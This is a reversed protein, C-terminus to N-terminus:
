EKYKLVPHTEKTCRHYTTRDGSQNIEILTDESVVEYWKDGTIFTLRNESPDGCGGPGCFVISYKGENGQHMIQLGYAQDCKEKWFGTFDKTSDKFGPYNQVAIFARIDGITKYHAGKDPTAGYDLITSAEQKIQRPGLGYTTWGDLTDSDRFVAHDRMSLEGVMTVTHTGNEKGRQELPFTLALDFTVNGGSLKCVKGKLRWFAPIYGSASPTAYKVGVKDMRDIVRIGSVEAPGRPFVRGLVIMVLKISLVPADLADIEYGPELKLGKSMMIQGGVLAIRGTISTKAGRMQTDILMDNTEPDFSAHWEAIDSVGPSTQKLVVRTFSAWATPDGCEPDKAYAAEARLTFYVLCGILVICALRFFSYYRRM